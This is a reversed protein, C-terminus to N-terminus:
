IVYLLLNTKKKKGLSPRVIVTLEPQGQVLSTAWLPRSIEPIRRGRAPGAVSKDQFCGVWMQVWTSLRWLKTRSYGRQYQKTRAERVKREEM